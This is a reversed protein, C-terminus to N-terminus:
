VGPREYIMRSCPNGADAQDFWISVVVAGRAV